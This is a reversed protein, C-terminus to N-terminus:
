ASLVDTAYEIIAGLMAVQRSMEARRDGLPGTCMLEKSAALLKPAKSRQCLEHDALDAWRAVGDAAQRLAPLVGTTPQEWMSKLDKRGRRSKFSPSSAFAEGGALRIHKGASKLQYPLIDLLSELEGQAKLRNLYQTADMLDRHEPKGFVDIAAREKGYEKERLKQREAHEKRDEQIRESQSDVGGAAVLLAAPAGHGSRNADDLPTGGLWDVPNIEVRPMHKYEPMRHMTHAYFSSWEQRAKRLLWICRLAGM